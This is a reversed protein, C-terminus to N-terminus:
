FLSKIPSRPGAEGRDPVGVGTSVFAPAIGPMVTEPQVIVLANTWRYWCRRLTTWFLRDLFNLTPRPRLPYIGARVWEQLM